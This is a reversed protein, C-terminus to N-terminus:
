TRASSTENKIAREIIDRLIPKIYMEDHDDNAYVYITILRQGLELSPLSLTASHISLSNSLSSSRAKGIRYVFPSKEDFYSKAVESNTLLATWDDSVESWTLETSSAIEGRAFSPAEETFNTDFASLTKDHDDLDNPIENYEDSVEAYICIRREPDVYFCGYPQDNVWWDEPLYLNVDYILSLQNLDGSWSPANGDFVVEELSQEGKREDDSGCGVLIGVLVLSLLIFRSRKM